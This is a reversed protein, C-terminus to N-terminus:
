AYLADNIEKQTIEKEVKYNSLRERSDKILEDKLTEPMNSNTYYTIDNNTLEILNDLEKIKKKKTKITEDKM